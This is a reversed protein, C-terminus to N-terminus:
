IVFIFDTYVPIQPHGAVPLAGDISIDIAMDVSTDLNGNGDLDVFVRARGQNLLTGNDGDDRDFEVVVAVQQSSTDGGVTYFFRAAATETIAPAGSMDRTVISNILLGNTAGLNLASLDIKDEGSVFSAEIAGTGVPPGVITSNFRGIIDLQGFTSQNQATYVLEDRVGPNLLVTQKGLTASYRLALDTLRFDSVDPAIGTAVTTDDLVALLQLETSDITLDGAVGATWLYLGVNNTADLFFAM